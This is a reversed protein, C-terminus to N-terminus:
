KTGTILFGYFKVVGYVTTAASANQITGAYQLSWSIANKQSGDLTIRPVEIVGEYPHQESRTSASSQATTGVVRSASLDVAETFVRDGVKIGLSSNWCADVDGQAAGVETGNFHTANAYKQLIASGAKTSDEQKLFLAMGLIVFLDNQNLRRESARPVGGGNQNITFDYNGKNTVLAVESQLYSPQIIVGGNGNGNPAYKRTLEALHQESRIIDRM